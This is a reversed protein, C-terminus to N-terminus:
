EAAVTERVPKQTELRPPANVAAVISVKAQTLERVCAMVAEQQMRLTNTAANLTASREGDNDNLKSLQDSAFQSHREIQALNGLLGQAAGTVNVRMDTISSVCETMSLSNREVADVVKSINHNFVGAAEASDRTAEAIAALMPALGRQMELAEKTLTGLNVLGGQMDALLSTAERMHTSMSQQAVIMADLRADFKVRDEAAFIAHKNIIGTLRDISAQTAEGASSPPADTSHAVNAWKEIEHVWGESARGLFHSLAGSILSSALGFMSSSFATSMGGLPAALSSVLLKADVDGGGSLMQISTKIGEMTTTLGVFTGLLGLGILLGAAYDLFRVRWELAKDLMHVAATRELEDFSILHKLRGKFIRMAGNLKPEEAGRPFEIAIKRWQAMGRSIILLTYLAYLVAIGALAAIAANIILNHAIFSSEYALVYILAAASMLALVTCLFVANRTSKM